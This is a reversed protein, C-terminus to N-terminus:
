EFPLISEPKADFLGPVYEGVVQEGGPLEVGAIGNEDPGFVRRGQTIHQDSQKVCIIPQDTM